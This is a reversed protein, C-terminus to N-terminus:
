NKLRFSYILSIHWVLWSACRFAFSSWFNSLDSLLSKFGSGIFHVGIDIARSSLADGVHTVVALLTGLCKSGSDLFVTVSNISRPTMVGTWSAVVHHLGAKKTGFASPRHTRRTVSKVPNFLNTRLGVCGKGDVLSIM